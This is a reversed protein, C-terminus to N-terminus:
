LYEDNLSSINIELEQRLIGYYQGYARKLYHTYSSSFVGVIECAEILEDYSVEQGSNSEKKLQLVEISIKSLFRLLLSNLLTLYPRSFKMYTLFKFIPQPSKHQEFILNDLSEHLSDIDCFSYRLLCDTIIVELNKTNPLYNGYKTKVHQALFLSFQQFYTADKNTTEFLLQYRRLHEETLMIRNDNYAFNMCTATVHVLFENAIDDMLKGCFIGFRFKENKRLNLGICQQFMKDNFAKELMKFYKNKFRVLDPILNFTDRHKRITDLRMRILRYEDKKYLEKLLEKRDRKNLTKNNLIKEQDKFAKNSLAYVNAQYKVLNLHCDKCLSAANPNLNFCHKIQNLEDESYIVTMDVRDANCSKSSNKSKKLSKHNVIDASKNPKKLWLRIKKSEEEFMKFSESGFLNIPKRLVLRINSVVTDSNENSCSPGPDASENSPRSDIGTLFTFM